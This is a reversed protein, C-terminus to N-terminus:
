TFWTKVDEIDQIPLRLGAALLSSKMYGAFRNWEAPSVHSEISRWRMEDAQWTLHSIEEPQVVHAGACWMKKARKRSVSMWDLVRSSGFDPLEALRTEWLQSPDEQLHWLFSPAGPKLVNDAVLVAEEALLGPKQFLLQLDKLFRSGRQDFFIVDFPGCLQPLVEESHGVHVTVVQQLGAHQVVQQALRAVTPDMEVSHVQGHPLVAAGFRLASFGVYCGVELIRMPRTAGLIADLLQAKQGGAVKLWLRRTSCFEEVAALAAQADGQAAHSQVFRLLETERWTRPPASPLAEWLSAERRADKLQVAGSILASALDPALDQHGVEDVLTQFAMGLQLKVLSRALMALGRQDNWGRKPRAVHQQVAARLRRLQQHNPHLSALSWSLCAMEHGKLLQLSSVKQEDEEVKTLLKQLWSKQELTAWSWSLMAFEQPQMEKLGLAVPYLQPSSSWLMTAFSWFINALIRSTLEAHREASVMELSRLLEQIGTALDNTPTSVKGGLPRVLGLLPELIYWLCTSWRKRVFVQWIESFNM